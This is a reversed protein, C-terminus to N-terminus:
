ETSQPWYRIILSYMGHMDKQIQTIESQIIKDLEMWKGIFKMIDKDKIASYYKNHLYIVYEKEVRSNLPM